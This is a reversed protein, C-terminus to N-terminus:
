SPMKETRRTLEGDPPVNRGLARYTWGEGRWVERNLANRGDIIRRQAVIRSLDAPHLQQFERWETLLLLLDLAADLASPAYALTPYDKRANDMAKPDYVRVAAGAQQVAVAVDLAPSDRIDDSDPKFAAGFVGIRTGALSGDCM